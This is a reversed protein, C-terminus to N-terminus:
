GKEPPRSSAYVSVLRAILLAVYFMGVTSEVMALMRAANSVPIIDGYYNTLSGFSFYLAEFGAMTRHEGVTFVFSTPTLAAVLAYAFGWLLGLLLYTAIAGCLVEANVQPARLIFSLLHWAVFACFVIATALKIETLAWAPSLHHVWIAIVAPAALLAATILTRRRGGVAAVASLLVVTLLAAEFLKGYPLQDVFPIVVILLTLAMLFHALSLRRLGERRPPQPTTTMSTM